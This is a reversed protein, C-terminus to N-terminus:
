SLPPNDPTTEPPQSLEKKVRKYLMVLENETTAEELFFEGYSGDSTEVKITAGNISPHRAMLLDPGCSVIIADNDLVLEPQNFFIFAQLGNIDLILGTTVGNKKTLRINEIKM